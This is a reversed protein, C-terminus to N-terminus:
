CRMLIVNVKLLDTADTYEHLKGHENFIVIRANIKSELRMLVSMEDATFTSKNKDM